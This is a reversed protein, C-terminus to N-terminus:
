AKAALAPRFAQFENAQEARPQSLENPYQTSNLETKLEHASDLWSALREYALSSWGRVLLGRNVFHAYAAESAQLLTSGMRWTKLHILESGGHLWHAELCGQYYDSSEHQHHHHDERSKRWHRSPQHHLRTTERITCRLCVQQPQAEVPVGATICLRKLISLSHTQTGTKVVVDDVYAEVNENLHKKFYYQIARQYTAGANNLGFLMTTYCYTSRPSSRPRTRTKKRAQLKTTGRTAISSDFFTAVRQPTSSNIL